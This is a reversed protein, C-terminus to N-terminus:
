YHSVAMLHIPKKKLKNRKIEAKRQEEGANFVDVLGSILASPGKDVKPTQV